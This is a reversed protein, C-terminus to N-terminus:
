SGSITSSPPSLRKHNAAETVDQVVGVVGIVNNESDRGMTANILLFCTDRSKTWFELECNSTKNGHLADVFIKQVSEHQTPVIFTTVLPRNFAKNKSYGTTAFRSFADPVHSIPREFILGHTQESIQFKIM